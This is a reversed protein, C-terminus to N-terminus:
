EKIWGVKIRWNNFEIRRKKFDVPPSQNESIVRERMINTQEELNNLGISKRRQNVKEIDDFRQPSMLGNIDWDFQTGYLQSENQLAAIRDKLYALQIPNAQRLEVATKLLEKCKKMFKPLSISHQIILWAAESAEKGVKDITPYGILKIIEDLLKANNIHLQEMQVNYGNGLQDDRILQDRFELDENKLQIIKAAISQNDM